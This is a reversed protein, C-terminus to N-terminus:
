WFLVSVVTYGATLVILSGILLTLVRRPIKSALFAGIPAAMVGGAVLGLLVQWHHVGVYTIFVATAFYTVFFEATSVTGIVKRPNEGRNILNATVLPGWGGGGIADLLGGTAALLAPRKLKRKVTADPKRIGKYLIYLGLLLLYASVYPKIAEGHLLDALLYAGLVAGLVGPFVLKLLLPKDINRFRLHSLGSVGTTFIEATHVSASAMRPTLGFNLLLSTCSVGYAMGLAGDIVQAVFGALLFFFFTQDFVLGGRLHELLLQSLFYAIMVIKMLLIIQGIPSFSIRKM